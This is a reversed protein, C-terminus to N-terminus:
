YVETVQRHEVVWSTDKSTTKAEQIGIRERRKMTMMMARPIIALWIIVLVMQTILMLMVVVMLMLMWMM